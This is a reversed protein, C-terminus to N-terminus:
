SAGATPGSLELELRDGPTLTLRDGTDAFVVLSEIEHYGDPRRGLLTVLEGEHVVLSVGHLAKIRGYHVVVDRAELLIPRDDSSTM